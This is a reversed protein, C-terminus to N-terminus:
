SRLEAHILTAFLSTLRALEPEVEERRLTRGQARFCLRLTTSRRGPGLQKGRYNGVFQVSELFPLQADRVTAEIQSWTVEDAVVISLDRDLLPSSTLVQARPVPPYGRALTEWDLEAAAVEGDIGFAARASPTLLGLVGIVTGDVALTGCPHLAAGACRCHSTHTTPAVDCHAHVGCEHRVLSEVSGRVFRYLEDSSKPGAAVLAITRREHHTSGDLWFTTAHEFLKIESAGRDRNLALSQMLSPLLSPRLVPEGMAREDAVRLTQIVPPVFPEAARESILTPSVTEVFGLGVLCQKATRVAELEFQRGVPRISVFDRQPIRDLGALRVVEEILDIERTIDIRRPPVTCEIKDGTASVRPAFGLVSLVHEVDGIEQTYGAIARLREIRLVVRQPSPVPPGAAVAGSLLTGGACEIILAALREAAADVEAPHVGREFRYSSDSSIRTSRSTRRVAVPDFAAAEIVIDTTADTVASEAGGKVGALAVPREADAIVLTGEDLAIAKSGEGLPLFLEGQRADRVHIASGRLRKLDFVHSPQGSEFLVFNTCDVVNNRPIQGIAILRESLWPPSPGVRVGRIVRATYRACREPASNTVAIANSAPESSHALDVKPIQLTRGSAAAIERALGIHCLCDGRNSTTEIEQTRDGGPLEHSSECPFGAATLVEAQEDATAPTSLYANIWKVSTRMTAALTGRM